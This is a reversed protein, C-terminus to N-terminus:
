SLPAFRALRVKNTSCKYRYGDFAQVGFGELLDVHRGTLRDRPVAGEGKGLAIGAEVWCMRDEQGFRIEHAQELVGADGTEAGGEIGVVRDQGDAAGVAGADGGRGHGGVAITRAKGIASQGFPTNLIADLDDSGMAPQARYADYLPAADTRAKESLLRSIELTNGIPGLNQEVADGMRGIQGQSRAALLPEAFERAAPSRRVAAGALEGLSPASDALTFPANVSSGNALAATVKDTGAKTITSSLSQEAPTLAAARPIPAASVGPIKDALLRAIDVAKSGAATRALAGIPKALLAGTGIGAASTATGILAGAIRNDNDQGAGSAAGYGLDAALAPEALGAAAGLKGIGAMALLSGAMQGAAASKPNAAFAAQKRANLDALDGGGMLSAFEDSMGGMGADIAGGIATGTPSAAFQNLLNTPTSVSTDILNGNFGGKVMAIMKTVDDPSIPMGGM